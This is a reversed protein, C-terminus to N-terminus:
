ILEFLTIVFMNKDHRIETKGGLDAINKRIIEIGVGEV